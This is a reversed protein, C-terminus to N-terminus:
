RVSRMLVPEPSAGQLHNLEQRIAEVKAWALDIAASEADDERAIAEANETALKLFQELKAIRPHELFDSKFLLDTVTVIGLLKEQIVPARDIGLQAFLQAVYEVALDPNVAICPKTAIEAVRIEQPNKGKALVKSVIDSETVIGYADEECYRDVILSRLGQFKMLKVAEAVTASGGITAVEQTMIDKAKLM